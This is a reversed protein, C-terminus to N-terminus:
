KWEFLLIRTRPKTSNLCTCCAISRSGRALTGRAYPRSNLGTHPSSSRSVGNRRSPALRLLSSTRPVALRRFLMRGGSAHRMSATSSRFSSPALVPTRPARPRRHLHRGPTQRRAAARVQHSHPSTQSRSSRATTTTCLQDRTSGCWRRGARVSMSVRLIATRQGALSFPDRCVSIRCLRFIELGQIPAARRWASRAHVHPM